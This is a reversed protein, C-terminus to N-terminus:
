NNQLILPIETEPKPKSLDKINDAIIDAQKFFYNAQSNIEIKKLLTGIKLYPIEYSSYLKIASEYCELAEKIKNVKEFEEGLLLWTKISHPEQKLANCLCAIPDPTLSAAFLFTLYNDPELTAAEEFLNCALQMNRHIQMAILGDHLLNEFRTSKLQLHRDNSAAGELKSLDEFWKVDKEIEDNRRYTLKLHKRYYDLRDQGHQVQLRERIVYLRAEQAINQVLLSDEALLNLTVILEATNKFLFGTKGANVSDRYPELHAMVPVVGSIAYELFKVDSRSRNFACNKLPAIGIDISKLFNYYNDITGPLTWKKNHQPLSDFLKWIPESCMLHLSVNPRTIIWNILAPAIEAMDELHGHSGGWGIVLENNKKLPKVAPVNLIQNPFVKCNRNLHGYIKKLEPSSVQLANSSNALRFTLDLNQKNNFFFYVPNWKQLANIDDAIEYVTLKRKENRGRILPLIDPDCINKLILIDAKRMIETKYRHQNTINIVHVGEEQAMAIGPAHTRYYYDGSGENQPPEVQAITLPITSEYNKM